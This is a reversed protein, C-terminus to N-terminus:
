QFEKKLKDIEEMLLSRVLEPMRSEIMQEVSERLREELQSVTEDLLAELEQSSEELPVEERSEAEHDLSENFAGKVAEPSQSTDPVSGDVIVPGDAHSEEFARSGPGELDFEDGSGDDSVEGATVEFSPSEGEGSKEPSETPSFDAFLEGDLDEAEDLIATQESVLDEADTKLEQGTESDFLRPEFDFDGSDFSAEDLEEIIEDTLEIIDDDSDDGEEIHSDYDLDFGLDETADLDLDELEKDLEFSEKPKKMFTREIWQRNRHVRPM